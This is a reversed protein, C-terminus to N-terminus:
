EVNRSANRALCKMAAGRGRVRDSGAICRMQKVADTAFMADLVAEGLWIM